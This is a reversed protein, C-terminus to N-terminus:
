LASIINCARESWTYKAKYDGYANTGIKDAFIRDTVISDIANAWADVDDCPVLVANKDPKLVERLVPLDSSIIPVGAAMYEFMKMPSMWRGTDHGAIGISVKKQYPMLLINVARMVQQADAHPIHGVFVLNTLAKNKVRRQEVDNKNGGFVLFLTEKKREALSEIIEVGRGVYLHGFYAAICEYDEVQNSYSRLVSRNHSADSCPRLGPPAADHLILTHSPAVGHYETLIEELKQSIVITKVWPRTMILCQLKKRVGSELQHTEFLIPVRRIVAYYFAAYLNRSLIRLKSKEERISIIAMAAVIWNIGRQVTSAYSKVKFNESLEVGYSAEIDKNNQEEDKVLRKAYLTVDVGQRALENCQWVVHVSNATKSPLLSPSIYHLKM